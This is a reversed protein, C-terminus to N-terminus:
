VPEFVLLQRSMLCYPKASRCAIAKGKRSVDEAQGAAIGEKDTDGTSGAGRAACSVSWDRWLIVCSPPAGLIGRRAGKASRSRQKYDAKMAHDEDRAWAYGKEILHGGFDKKGIIVHALLRGFADREISGGTFVITVNKNLLESETYAKIEQGLALMREPATGAVQAQENLKNGRRTEPTDIGALRVRNKGLFWDIDITDGDVVHVVTAPFRQRHLTQWAHLHYGALFGVLVSVLVALGIWVSVYIRRRSHM